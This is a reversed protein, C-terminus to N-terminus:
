ASFTLGPDDASSLARRYRRSSVLSRKPAGLPSPVRLSFLTRKAVSVAIADFRRVLRNARRRRHPAPGPWGTPWIWSCTLGRLRIKCTTRSDQQPNPIPRMENISDHGRSRCCTTRVLPLALTRPCLITFAGFASAVTARVSIPHMASSLGPTSPSRNIDLDGRVASFMPPDLVPPDGAPVTVGFPSSGSGAAM